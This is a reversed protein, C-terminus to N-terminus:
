NFYKLNIINDLVFVDLSDLTHNRVDNEMLASRLEKSTPEKYNLFFNKNKKDGLVKSSIHFPIGQEELAYVASPTQFRSYILAESLLVESEEKTILKEYSAARLIISLGKPLEFQLIRLRDFFNYYAQDVDKHQTHNEIYKRSTKSNLAAVLSKNSLYSRLINKDCFSLIEDISNKDAQKLFSKISKIPFLKKHKNVISFAGSVRSGRLGPFKERFDRVTSQDLNLQPNDSKIDNELHLIDKEDNSEIEPVQIIINEQTPPEDFLFIKGVVHVGLRGARGIINKYAFYDINKGERANKWYVLSEAVTNVGQVMTPTMILTHLLGKNFLILIIQQLSRPMRGHHIGIGFKLAKYVTWDCVTDKYNAEMWECFKEVTEDIKYGSKLEKEFLKKALSQAKLPSPRFILLGKDNDNIIQVLRDLKLEESGNFNQYEPIVKQLVPNYDSRKLVVDKNDIRDAMPGILLIKKSSIAIQRYVAKLIEAREDNNNQEEDETINRNPDILYFEDIVFLDLNVNNYRKNIWELCREQTWLAIWKKANLDIEEQDTLIEYDSFVPKRKLRFYTEQLLAITPQIIIATQPSKKTVYYDILTTKGFSTPAVLALQKIKDDLLCDIMQIQGHHFFKGDEMEYPMLRIMDVLSLTDINSFVYPMLGASELLDIIMKRFPYWESRKGNSKLDDYIGLLENVELLNGDIDGNQFAAALNILTKFHM